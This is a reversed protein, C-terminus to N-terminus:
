YNPDLAAVYKSNIKYNILYHIVEWLEVNHLRMLMTVRSRIRLWSKHSKQKRPLPLLKAKNITRPFYQKIPDYIVKLIKLYTEEPMVMFNPEFNCKNGLSLTM